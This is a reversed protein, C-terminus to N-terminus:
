KSLSSMLASTGVALVKKFIHWNKTKIM